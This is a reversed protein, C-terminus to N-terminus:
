RWGFWSVLSAVSTEMRCHPNDTSLVSSQRLIQNELKIVVSLGSLDLIVLKEAGVHVICIVCRTMWKVEYEHVVPLKMQILFDACM